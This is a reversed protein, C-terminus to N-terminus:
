QKFALLFKEKDPITAVKPPLREIVSPVWSALQTPYFDAMLLDYGAPAVPNSMQNSGPAANSKASGPKGGAGSSSSAAAQLELSSHGLIERIYNLSTFIPEPDFFELCTLVLPFFLEFPDPDDSITSANKENLLPFVRNSQREFALQVASLFNPDTVEPFAAVIKSTIWLYNSCGSAEFGATVKKSGYQELIESIVTWIEGMSKLCDPLLDGELRGIISIFTDLRELLDSFYQQVQKTPAQKSAAINYLGEVLPMCFTSM